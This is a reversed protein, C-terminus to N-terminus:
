CQVSCLSGYFISHLTKMVTDIESQIQLYFSIHYEKNSPLKIVLPSLLYWLNNNASNSTISWLM